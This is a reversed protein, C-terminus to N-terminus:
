LCSAYLEKYSQYQDQKNYYRAVRARMTESCQAHFERDTLLRLIGQALAQPDSLPVVIGGAGLKPAEDEKGLIIERCAGVHTAVSPIGAAGAELLVLPQAESISSSVLVDIQPLYADINVMGTFTVTDQLAFYEVSEKCEKFYAPEEDTPGIILARLDPLSKHLAAVARLYNKVDKIPVVRGIMAITPREQPQHVIRSYRAVDIGNPIIHMRERHAGDALQALQNGSFLTIIHDCAEYCIHSYNAFVDVWLDRLSRHTPEITLAKSATEELWDASAIEIRRENTYIGHETLIVKKGTEIKARAAMLGAYGTSLAHYCRASPLEPVVLSYLGGMLARWSWFYDLMSSEIFSAEYMSTLLEWAAESDLLLKSGFDGRHPGTIEMMTKLDRLRSRSTTMNILPQRIENFLRRAEALPLSRGKPLQQLHLTTLGSVNDPLTYRLTPREDRPLLSVVHFSLHDQKGILEHTWASVGGVVYPYTGELILCVDAMARTMHGGTAVM